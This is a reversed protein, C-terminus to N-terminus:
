KGQSNKGKKLKKKKSIEGELKEKGLLKKKAL